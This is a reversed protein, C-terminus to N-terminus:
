GSIEVMYSLRVALQAFPSRTRGACTRAEERDRKKKKKKEREQSVLQEARM